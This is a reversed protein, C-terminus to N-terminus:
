IDTNNRKDEGWLLKNKLANIFNDDYLSVYKFPYEGKTVCVTEGCRVEFSRNDVSLIASARRSHIVIELKADIPMVLPRVNLNHPAIPAMVLVKSDPMVIPGGVSLSYATSGTPTSIVVGDAWFLPLERGDIRMEIGVMEPDKRQISIENVSYPYFWEPMSLAQVKLMDREQISYRGELLDDIWKPIENGAKATTLFGLRGFNIGAVPIGRKRVYTMSNLFSGDGGLSLFLDIGEPLDEYSSFVPGKPLEILKDQTIYRYFRNLYCLRAGRRSLECVLVLMKPISEDDMRRGLIAIFNM